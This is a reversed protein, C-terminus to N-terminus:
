PEDPTASSLVPGAETLGYSEIIKIGVDCFFQAVRPPLAADGSVALRLRGGLAAQAPGFLWSALNLRHNGDFRRNLERLQDFGAQVFPGRAEVKEVIRRHIAEWVAPVGILATPKM